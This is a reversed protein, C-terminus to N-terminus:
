ITPPQVLRHMTARGMDITISSSVLEDISAILRWRIGTTGIAQLPATKLLGSWAVNPFKDGTITHMCRTKSGGTTTDWLELVLANLPMSANSSASVRVECLAEYWGGVEVGTTVTSSIPAFYIEGAGGTGTTTIVMRQMEGGFGDPHVIKSAVASVTTGSNRFVRWDTATIGTTATGVTGTTGALLGNSILNGNPNETAHYVDTASLLGEYVPTLLPELKKRGEAAITYAGLISPHVGDGTYAPKMNGTASTPDILTAYPDLLIMGQTRKAKDRLWNNVAHHTRRETDNAWNFTTGSRPMIPLVVLIAGADLIRTFIQEMNAIITALSVAARIDNTGGLFFVVDPKRSLVSADLRALMGATTDGGIGANDGKVNTAGDNGVEYHFPFGMLVQLWTFYGRPGHYTNFASGTDTNYNTISDGLLVARRATTLDSRLSKVNQNLKNFAARLTDGTGDNVSTGINVSQITTM